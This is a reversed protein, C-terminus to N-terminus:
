SKSEAEAARQKDRANLKKILLQLEKAKIREQKAQEYFADADAQFQAANELVEALQLAVAGVEYSQFPDMRSVKLEYKVKPNDEVNEEPKKDQEESM